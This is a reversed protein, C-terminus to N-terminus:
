EGNKIRRESRRITNNVEQVVTQMENRISMQAVFYSGASAGMLAVAILWPLMRFFFEKFHHGNTTQPLPPVPRRDIDFRQSADAREHLEQWAREELKKLRSNVGPLGARAKCELHMHEIKELRETHGALTTMMSSQHYEMKILTGSITAISEAVAKNEAKLKKVIYELNEQTMPPLSNEHMPM